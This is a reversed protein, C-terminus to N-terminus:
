DTGPGQFDHAHNAMSIRIAARAIGITRVVLGRRHKQAAFVHDVRAEVLGEIQARIGSRRTNARAIRGPLPQTPKRRQLIHSKFM